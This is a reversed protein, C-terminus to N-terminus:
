FDQEMERSHGHSQMSKLEPKIRLCRGELDVSAAATRSREDESCTVCFHPVPPIEDNGVPTTLNM